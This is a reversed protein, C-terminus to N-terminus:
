VVTATRGGSYVIDGVPEEHASEEPVLDELTGQETTLEEISNLHEDIENRLREIAREHYGIDHWIEDLRAGVDENVPKLASM